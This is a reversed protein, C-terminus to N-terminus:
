KVRLFCNNQARAQRMIHAQFIPQTGFNYSEYDAGFCEPWREYVNRQSM